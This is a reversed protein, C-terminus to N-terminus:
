IATPRKKALPYSPSEILVSWQHHCSLCTLKVSLHKPDFTSVSRPYGQKDACSPCAIPYALEASM